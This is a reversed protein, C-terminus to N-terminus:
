FLYGTFSEYEILRGKANRRENYCLFTNTELSKSITGVKAVFGIDVIASCYVFFLNVSFFPISLYVPNFFRSFQSIIFM